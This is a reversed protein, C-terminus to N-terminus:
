NKIKLLDLIQNQKYLIERLMAVVDEGNDKKKLLSMFNDNELTDAFNVKKIKVPERINEGIKLKIPEENNVEGLTKVDGLPKVEGLTKVDGPIKVESPNQIWKTAATKDQTKLVMTLQNERLAIQEALIKDMESGMPSDLTDSFDIKEPVKVGNYTDFEKKKTNLELEFVKQRKQALDAANYDLTMEEKKTFKGIDNIMESIIKKDLNVITDAPTIHKSMTQFKRDFEEKVHSFNNDPISNFAGDDSLLKWVLGKNQNSMFKNYLEM